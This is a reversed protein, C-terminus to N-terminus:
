TTLGREQWYDSLADLARREARYDRPRDHAVRERAGMSRRRIWAFGHWCRWFERVRDDEVQRNTVRRETCAAIHDTTPTAM